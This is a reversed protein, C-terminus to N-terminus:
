QDEEFTTNLSERLIKQEKVPFLKLSKRIIQGTIRPTSSLLTSSLFYATETPNKEILDNVLLQLAAIVRRNENTFLPSIIKFIRPLNFFTPDQILARLAAIAIIIQSPQNINIWSNLIELWNEQNNQRINKSGNLFLLQHIEFENSNLGFSLLKQTVQRTQTDPLNGLILSSFLKTEYFGISWLQDAYNLALDPNSKALSVLRLQIRHILIPPLQLKPILSKRQIDKGQQYALNAHVELLSMFNVKFIEGPSQPNFVQNLQQELRDLHIAPM